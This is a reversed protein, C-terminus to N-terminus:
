NIEFVNQIIQMALHPVETKKHLWNYFVHTSVHCRDIVEDRKFLRLNRPFSQYIKLLDLNQNRM